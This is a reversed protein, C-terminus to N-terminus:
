VSEEQLESSQLSLGPVLHSCVKAIMEAVALISGHCDQVRKESLGTAQKDLCTQRRYLMVGGGGRSSRGKGGKRQLFLICASSFRNEQHFAGRGLVKGCPSFDRGHQIGTRGKIVRKPLLSCQVNYLSHGVWWTPRQLKHSSAGCPLGRGVQANTLNPTQEQQTSRKRSPIDVVHRESWSTHRTDVGLRISSMSLPLSEASAEIRGGGTIRDETTHIATHM